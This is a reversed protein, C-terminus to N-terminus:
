TIYHGHKRNYVLTPYILRNRAATTLHAAENGDANPEKKRRKRPARGQRKSPTTPPPMNDNDSPSGKLADEEEQASQSEQRRNLIQTKTSKTSSPRLMMNDDLDDCIKHTTVEDKHGEAAEYEVSTGRETLGDVSEKEDCM